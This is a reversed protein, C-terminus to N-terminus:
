KKEDRQEFAKSEETNKLAKQISEEDLNLKRFMEEQEKASLDAEMTGIDEKSLKIKDSPLHMLSKNQINLAISYKESRLHPPEIHVQMRIEYMGKNWILTPTYKVGRTRKTAFIRRKYSKGWLNISSIVIQSMTDKIRNADVDGCLSTQFIINDWIFYGVNQYIASSLLNEFLMQHKLATDFNPRPEVSPSDAPPTLYLTKLNTKKIVLEKLTMGLTIGELEKPMPIHSVKKTSSQM